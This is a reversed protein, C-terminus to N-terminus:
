DRKKVNEQMRTDLSLNDLRVYQMEDSRSMYTSIDIKKNVQCDRYVVKGNQVEWAIAHAGGFKWSMAIMGRSGEGYNSLERELRTVAEKRDHTPADDFRSHADLEREKSNSEFYVTHILADPFDTLDADIGTEQKFQKRAATWDYNRLVQYTSLGNSDYKSEIDYGRRRMDYAMTCYACNQSTLPDSKDYDPNVLAMDEDCTTPKSKLPLEPCPNNEELETRLKELEPERKKSREYDQAMNYSEKQMQKRRDNEQALRNAAERERKEDALRKAQERKGAEIKEKESTANRVKEDRKQKEEMRKAIDRTRQRIAEEKTDKEKEKDSEFLVSFKKSVVDIINANKQNSAPEGYYYKWKTDGKKAGPIAERKIYKYHMLFNSYVRSHHLDMLDSRNSM